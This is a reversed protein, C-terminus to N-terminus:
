AQTRARPAGAGVRVSHRDDSITPESSTQPLAQTTIASCHTLEPTAATAAFAPSPTMEFRDM